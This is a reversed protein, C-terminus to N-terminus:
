PSNPHAPYLVRSNGRGRGTRTTPRNTNQKDPLDADYGSISFGAKPLKYVNRQARQEATLPTAPSPDFQEITTTGLERRMNAGGSGDRKGVPRNTMFKEPKDFHTASGGIMFPSVSSGVIHGAGYDLGHIVMIVPLLFKPHTKESRGAAPAATSGSGLGGLAVGGPGRKVVMDDTLNLYGLGERTIDMDFTVGKGTTPEAEQNQAFLLMPAFTSLVIDLARKMPQM